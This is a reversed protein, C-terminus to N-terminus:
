NLAILTVLDNMGAFLHVSSLVMSSINIHCALDRAPGPSRPAPM